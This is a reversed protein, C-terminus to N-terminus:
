GKLRELRRRQELKEQALRELETIDSEGAEKKRIERMGEKISSRASALRADNIVSSPSTGGIKSQRVAEQIMKPGDLDHKNLLLMLEEFSAGEESDAVSALATVGYLDRESVEVIFARVNDPLTEVVGSPETLSSMQLLNRSLAPECLVAVVLQQHFRSLGGQEENTRVSRPAVQPLLREAFGPSHLPRDFGRDRRPTFVPATRAGGGKANAGADRVLGFLSEASVGLYNAGQKVFLEREVPNQVTCILSAYKAAVRGIGAVDDEESSEGREAELHRVYIEIISKQRQRLEAVLKEGSFKQAFTDPDEDEELLVASLDIGSNLFLPFCLAAAKRGAADGDFVVTVRDAVRALLRVHDPTVATGCTAVSYNVGAQHLSLVDMYGEVLLLHRSKRIEHLAHNLGYFSRRKTYLPTEPSNLYKPAQTQNVILRAGFGIVAGDNRSIPFVLRHRLIDYHGTGESKGTKERAKVLGLNELLSPLKELFEDDAKKVSSFYRQSQKVIFEWRDPAYGLLFKSVTEPKIGRRALYDRGPEGVKDHNLAATYIIQVARVVERMEKTRASEVTAKRASTQPIPVGVKEALYEVAQPFTFGRTKMLFNFVTGKEGCGFCHYFGEEENVHFSPTKEQHFPCLGVFTRGTRKLTVKEGIVQVLSTRQRVEEIIEHPISM